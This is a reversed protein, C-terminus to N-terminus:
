TLKTDPHSTHVLCSKPGETPSLHLEPNSSQGRRGTEGPTLPAQWKGSMPGDRGPTGHTGHQSFLIMQSERVWFGEREVRSPAKGSGEEGKVIWHECLSQRGLLVTNLQWLKNTQKKFLGVPGHLHWEPSKIVLFFIEAALRAQMGVSRFCLRM